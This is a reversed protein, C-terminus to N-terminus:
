FAKKIMKSNKQGFYIKHVYKSQSKYLQFKVKENSTKAYTLYKYLKNM